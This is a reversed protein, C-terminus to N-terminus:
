VLIEHSFNGFFAIDGNVRVNKVFIDAYGNIDAATVNGSFLSLGVAASIGSRDTRHQKAANHGSRPGQREAAKSIWRM